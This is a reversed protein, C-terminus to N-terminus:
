ASEDGGDVAKLGLSALNDIEGYISNVAAQEKDNEYTSAHWNQGGKNHVV